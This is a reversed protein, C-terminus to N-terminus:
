QTPGRWTTRTVQWYTSVKSGDPLANIQAMGILGDQKNKFCIVSGAKLVAYAIKGDTAFKTNTLCTNYDATEGPDLLVLEVGEVRSYSTHFYLTGNSGCDSYVIPVASKLGVCYGEPVNMQSTNVVGGEAVGGAISGPSPSGSASNSPGGTRTATATPTTTTPKGTPPEVSPTPSGSPAGGGTAGTGPQQSSSSGANQKKDDDKKNALVGYTVGGAAALVLVTILTVLARRKGKGKPKPEAPVPPPQENQRETVDAVLTDPLWGEAIQLRSDGSAARCLDIVQAPTPRQAPDKALLRAALDRVAVPCAALDPEEHVVRYLISTDTGEGFPGVGTAAYVALAGLSFVDTAPQSPKGQAQEPAMYAPTGISMGTQTLPTADAARAIGFDIVRPGDAALIVNSPKLDRHVVGASHVSQLAEAVGAVLVLVTEAPLPGHRQIAEHLPPGAVYATALWPQAAHADSDLVPATFLGQVRQAAAVEQQFRRRFEPDESFEGRIVKIAVPRGGPTSSLYVRGMGGAGLRARLAYGGISRPDDSELPRLAARDPGGTWAPRDAGRTPSAAPAPTAVRPETPVAAQPVPAPAPAPAPAAQAPTAHPAAAPRPPPGVRPAQAPPPPPGAPAAAPPGAPHPPVSPTADVPAVTTEADALQSAM